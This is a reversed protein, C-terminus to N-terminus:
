SSQLNKKHRKVIKKLKAKAKVPKLKRRLLAVFVDESACTVVCDAGTPDDGLTVGEGAVFHLAYEAPDRPPVGVVFGITCSETIADPMSQGLRVAEHVLWSSSGPLPAPTAM